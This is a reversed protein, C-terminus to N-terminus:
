RDRGRQTETTEKCLSGIAAVLEEDTGYGYVLGAFGGKTRPRPDKDLLVGLLEQHMRLWSPDLPPQWDPSQGTIDRHVVVRRRYHYQCGDLTARDWVCVLCADAIEDEKQARAIAPLLPLLERIPHAHHEPRPLLGDDRPQSDWYEVATSALLRARGPEGLGKELVKVLFRDRPLRLAAAVVDQPTLESGRGQLFALERDFSDRARWRRWEVSGAAALVLALALGLGAWERRRLAGM